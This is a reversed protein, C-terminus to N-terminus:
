VLTKITIMMQNPNMILFHLGKLLVLYQSIIGHYSIEKEKKNKKMWEVHSRGDLALPRICITEKHIPIVFLQSILLSADM